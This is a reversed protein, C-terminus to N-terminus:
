SKTYREQLEQHFAKANADPEAELKQQAVDLHEKAKAKDQLAMWSAAQVLNSMASKENLAQAREAWTIATQLHEKENSGEVLQLALTLLLNVQQEGELKELHNQIFDNGAQSLMTWEQLSSYYNLTVISGYKLAVTEKFYKKFIDEFETRKVGGGKELLLVEVESLSINLLKEEMVIAGFQKEFVAKNDILYRFAEKDHNDALDFIITRVEDTSWDEQSDLYLKLADHYMPDSADYASYAFKYLFNPAREGNKYRQFLQESQSNPTLASNGVKLFDEAAMYGIARHVLEGKANFFLYTPYTRVQHTRRFAAAADKDMDMKVNIFRDNFFSSVEEKPFVEKEMKKCPACWDAYADVFIYKDENNAKALADEWAGDQFQIQAQLSFGFMFLLLLCTLRKLM